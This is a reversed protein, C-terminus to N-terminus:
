IGKTANEEEMEQPNRPQDGKEGVLTDACTGGRGSINEKKQGM